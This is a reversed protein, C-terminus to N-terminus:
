YIYAERCIAEKLYKRCEKYDSNFMMKGTDTFMFFIVFVVVLIIIYFKNFSKKSGSIENPAGCHPCAEANRSIEKKCDPCVILRNQTQNTSTNDKQQPNYGCWLCYLNNRFSVDGCKPCDTEVVQKKIEFDKKNEKENISIESTKVENKKEVYGCRNCVGNHFASISCKPCISM